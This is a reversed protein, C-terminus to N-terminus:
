FFRHGLPRRIKQHNNRCEFPPQPKAPVRKAPVCSYSARRTITPSRTSKEARPHSMMQSLSTPTNPPPRLLIVGSSRSRSLGAPCLKASAPIPTPNQSQRSRSRPLLFKRGMLVWDPSGNRNDSQCEYGGNKEIGKLIKAWSLAGLRAKEDKQAPAPPHHPPPGKACGDPRRTGM